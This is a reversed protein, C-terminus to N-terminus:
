LYGGALIMFFYSVYFYLCNSLCFCENVIRVVTDQEPFHKLFFYKICKNNTMKSLLDHLESLVLKPNKICGKMHVPIFWRIDAGSRALSVATRADCIQALHQFDWDKLHDIRALQRIAKLREHHSGHQAINLLRWAISHKATKWWKGIPNIIVNIWKREDEEEQKLKRMSEKYIHYKIYIYDPRPKKDNRTVKEDM